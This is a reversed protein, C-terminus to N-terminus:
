SNRIDSKAMDNIQETSIGVGKKANISLLKQRRYLANNETDFNFKYTLYSSSAILDKM